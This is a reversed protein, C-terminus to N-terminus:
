EADKSRKSKPKQAGSKKTGSKATPKPTSASRTEDAPKEAPPTAEESAALMAGDRLGPIRGYGVLDVKAKEPNAADNKPMKFDFVSVGWRQVGDYTRGDSAGFMVRKKTRKETGLYLMVHTIPFDRSVEYTGSWFLLDGPQLENFEFSEATKGVVARFGGAKRVWVYQGSSDRPVDKFGHERLLYYITGSCDMGGSAPEASGYQYTLNLKTLALAATILEQIRPSQGAFEVLDTPEITANPAHEGKSAPAKAEAPEPDSKPAATEDAATKPVSKKKAPESEESTETPASRKKSARRKTTATEAYSSPLGFIFAVLIPLLRKM